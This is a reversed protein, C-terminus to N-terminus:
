PERERRLRALFATANTRTLVYEGSGTADVFVFVTNGGDYTWRETRDLANPSQFADVQEPVGYVIFVRGRDTQWGPSRGSYRRTAQQFRAVVADQFENRATSADPDRARWLSDWRAARQAAPADELTALEEPEFLLDLLERGAQVGGLAAVDAFGVDFVGQSSAIRTGGRLRLELVYRGFGQLPLEWEIPTRRGTGHVALTGADVVREDEARVRYEIDYHTEPVPAFDHAATRVRAAASSEDFFRAANPRTDTAAPETSGAAVLFQPPELFLGGPEPAAVVASRQWAAGYPEGQVLVILTLRQAGPPTPLHARRVFFGEEPQAALEFQAPWAHGAVVEGCADVVTASLVIRSTTTRAVRARARLDAWPLQAVIEYHPAGTSDWSVWADLGEAVQDVPTLTCRAACGSGLAAAACLMVIASSRRSM